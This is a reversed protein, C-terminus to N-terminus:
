LFNTLVVYVLVLFVILAVSVLVFLTWNTGSAEADDAVVRPAPDAMAAALQAERDAAVAEEAATLVRGSEAQRDETEDDLWETADDDLLWEPLEEEQEQHESLGRQADMMTQDVDVWSPISDDGAEADLAESFDSAPWLDEDVSADDDPLVAAVPEQEYSADEEQDQAAGPEPEQQFFPEDELDFDFPAVPEQVDSEQAGAPKTSGAAPPPSSVAPSVIPAPAQGLQELTQRAYAHNPDLELVKRLFAARQVNSPALRSLLVWAAVSEPERRLYEALMLRARGEDGAKAALLADRLEQDM